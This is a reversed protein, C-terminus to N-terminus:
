SKTYGMFNSKYGKKKFIKGKWLDIATFIIGIITLTIWTKTIIGILILIIYFSFLQNIIAIVGFIFFIIIKFKEM